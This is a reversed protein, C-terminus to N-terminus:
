IFINYMNISKINNSTLGADIFMIYDIGFEIGTNSDILNFAPKVSFDSIM